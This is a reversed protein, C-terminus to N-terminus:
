RGKKITNYERVTSSAKLIASLKELGMYRIM